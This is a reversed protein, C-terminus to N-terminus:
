VFEEVLGPVDPLEQGVFSLMRGPRAEPRSGTTLMDHNPSMAEPLAIDEMATDEDMPPMWLPARAPALVAARQPVAPMAPALTPSPGPALAPRLTLLPAPPPASSSERQPTAPQKRRTRPSTDRPASSPASPPASPAASPAASPPSPASRGRRTNSSPTASSLIAEIVLDDELTMRSGPVISPLAAPRPMASSRPTPTTTPAPAPAATPANKARPQAEPRAEPQHELQHELQHGPLESPPHLQAGGEREHSWIRGFVDRGPATPTNPSYYSSRRRRRPEAAIRPRPRIATSPDTPETADATLEGTDKRLIQLLDDVVTTQEPLMRSIRQRQQAALKRAEEERRTRAEQEARVLREVFGRLDLVVDHPDAVYFEALDATARQLAVAQEALRAARADADAM